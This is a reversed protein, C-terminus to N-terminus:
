PVAAPMEAFVVKLLADLGFPKHLVGSVEDAIVPREPLGTMVYIPIGAVLETQQLRAVHEVARAAPVDIDILVLDPREKELVDLAQDLTFTCVCPIGRRALATDVWELLGPDSDIVLVHPNGYGDAKDPSALQLDAAEFDGFVALRIRDMLTSASFPNQLYVVDPFQAGAERLKGTSEGSLVIVPVTSSEPHERLLALTNLGAIDASSDNLLVVDPKLRQAARLADHGNTAQELKCNSPDLAQKLAVSFEKNQTVMLIQLGQLSEADSSEPEPETDFIAGPLVATFSAGRKPESEVEIHGGHAEVISKDISLGIGTGEYRRAMSSDV